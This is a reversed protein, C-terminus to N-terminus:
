MEAVGGLEGGEVATRGGGAERRAMRREEVLDLVLVESEVEAVELVNKCGLIELFFDFGDGFTSGSSSGPGSGGWKSGGFM